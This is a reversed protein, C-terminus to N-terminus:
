KLFECCPNKLIDGAHRGHVALALRWVCYAPSLPPCPSDLVLVLLVLLVVVLLVVM